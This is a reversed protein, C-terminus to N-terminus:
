FCDGSNICSSDESIDAVLSPRWVHKTTRSDTNCGFHIWHSVVESWLNAENQVTLLYSVSGSKFQFCQMRQFKEEAPQRIDREDFVYSKQKQLLDEDIFKASTFYSTLVWHTRGRM